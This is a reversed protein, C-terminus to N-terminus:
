IEEDLKEPYFSYCSLKSNSGRWAIYKASLSVVEANDPIRSVIEKFKKGDM